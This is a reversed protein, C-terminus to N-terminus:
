YMKLHVPEYVFDRPHFDEREFCNLNRKKNEFLLLKDKPREELWICISDDPWDKYYNAISLSSASLFLLILISRILLKIYIFKIKLFYLSVRSSTLPSTM